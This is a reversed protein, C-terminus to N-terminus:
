RKGRFGEILMFLGGVILLAAAGAKLVLVSVLGVSLTIAGFAMRLPRPRPRHYAVSDLIETALATEVGGAVMRQLAQDRPLNEEVLLHKGWRYPDEPGMSM